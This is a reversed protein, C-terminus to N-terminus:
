KYTLILVLLKVKFVVIVEKSESYSICQHPIIAMQLNFPAEENLNYINLISLSTDSLSICYGAMSIMSSFVVLPLNWDYAGHSCVYVVVM